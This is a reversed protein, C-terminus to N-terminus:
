VGEADLPSRDDYDGTLARREAEVFCADLFDAVFDEEAAPAACSTCLCSPRHPADAPM